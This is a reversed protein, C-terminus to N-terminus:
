RKLNEAPQILTIESSSIVIQKQFKDIFVISDDFIEVIHGTFKLNNNLFLIVYENLYREIVDKKM